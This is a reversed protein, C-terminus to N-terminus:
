EPLLEDLLPKVDKGPFRGVLKKMAPGMVRGADRRSSAGTSAILERLIERVEDPSLAEPLYGEIIALEAREGDARDTAGAADYAEISERRKKAETALFSLEEDSTLDRRLEIQQNKLASMLMRITTLREAERAKMAAKMDATLRELLSM